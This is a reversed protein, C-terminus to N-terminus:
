LNINIGIVFQRGQAINGCDIGQFFHNNSISFEPDSGKYRTLTFVNRAEGWVSIGQLWSEWSEPIPINYRLTITKLRLYSGDEIWRDSFRNNGKPDGYCARPLDTVQGEYRWRGIEAVQQNYLTAGSNLVARQYNYVDNGLSYNFGASLKLRKWALTAFINGYFDPNPNGIIVKDAKDICGDGNQDVFWVDGAEFDVKAGTEDVYYLNNTEVGNKNVHSKGANAAEQTTSFVKDHTKYGYFM